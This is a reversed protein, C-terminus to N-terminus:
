SRVKPHPKAQPIREVIKYREKRSFAKLCLVALRIETVWVAQKKNLDARSYRLWFEGNPCLHRCSLVALFEKAFSKFVNGTQCNDRNMNFHGATATQTRQASNENRPTKSLM